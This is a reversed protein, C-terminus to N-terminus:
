RFITLISEKRACNLIAFALYVPYCVLLCIASFWTIFFPSNFDTWTSKTFQSAGVQSIAILFVLVVGIILRRTRFDKAPASDDTVVKEDTQNLAIKEEQSEAM